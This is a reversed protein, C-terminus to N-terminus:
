SMEPNSYTLSPLKAWGTYGFVTHCDLLVSKIADDRYSGDDYTIRRDSVNIVYEPCIHSVILTV